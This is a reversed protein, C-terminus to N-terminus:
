KAFLCSIECILCFNLITPLIILENVTLMVVKSINKLLASNGEDSPQERSNSELVFIMHCQFSHKSFLLHISRTEYMFLKLQIHM